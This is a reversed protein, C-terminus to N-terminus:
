KKPPAWEPRLTIIRGRICDSLDNACWAMEGGGGEFHYRFNDFAESSIHLMHDFENKPMPTKQHQYWANLHRVDGSGFAPFRSLAFCCAWIQAKSGDSLQKYLTELNHGGKPEVDEIRLLCKLHLECSFAALVVFPIGLSPKEKLQKALLLSAARFHEAADFNAKAEVKKKEGGSTKGHKAM